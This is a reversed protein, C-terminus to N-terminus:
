KCHTCYDGSYGIDCGNMCTGNIVDCQEKNLCFGCINSCNQGYRGDDCESLDIIKIILVHHDNLNIFQIFLM